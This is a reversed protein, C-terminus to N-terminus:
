PRRRIAKRASEWPTACRTARRRQDDLSFVQDELATSGDRGTDHRAARVPAAIREVLVDTDTAKTLFLDYDSFREHM